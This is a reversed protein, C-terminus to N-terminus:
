EGHDDVYEGNANANKAEEDFRDEILANDKPTADINTGIQSHKLVKLKV